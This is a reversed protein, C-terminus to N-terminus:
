NQSQERRSEAAEAMAKEEIAEYEAELGEVLGQAVEQPSGERQCAEGRRWEELYSDTGFLGKRMAVRDILDQFRQSLLEKHRKRGQSAEVVSPIKQWYLITYKAMLTTEATARGALSRTRANYYDRARSPM